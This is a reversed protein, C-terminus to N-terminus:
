RTILLCELYRAKPACDGIGPPNEGSVRRATRHFPTLSPHYIHMGTVAPLPAPFGPVGRAFKDWSYRVAYRVTALESRSRAWRLALVARLVAMPGGVTGCFWPAEDEFERQLALLM